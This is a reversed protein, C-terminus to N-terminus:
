EKTSDALYDALRDLNSAWGQQHADRATVSEFVAQRLTLRTKGGEDALTVTVLTQHRPAGTADEWAYTFALREPAVIERYTGQLWHDAGDPGRMCFRYTGGPRVDIRHSPMTFGRPGWWRVLHAPQTWVAFVLRRPADFVRTLVLAPEAARSSRAAV